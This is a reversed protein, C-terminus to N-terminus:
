KQSNRFAFLLFYYWLPKPYRVILKFQRRTSRTPVVAVHHYMRLIATM